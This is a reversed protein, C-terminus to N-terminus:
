LASERGHPHQPLLLLEEHKFNSDHPDALPFQHGQVKVLLFQSLVPNVPLVYHAYALQTSGQPVTFGHLLSKHLQALDLLFKLGRLNKLLKRDRKELVKYNYLDVATFEHGQAEELLLKSLGPDVLLFQSPSAHLDLLPFQPGKTLQLLLTHLRALNSLFFKLGRLNKLLKRDRKELVQYNHLDVATFEHGQAEELLLKSLGPDM